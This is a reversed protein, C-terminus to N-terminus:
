TLCQAYIIGTINSLYNIAATKGVGTEGVLLVPENLQVCRGVRELLCLAGQTHAYCFRYM